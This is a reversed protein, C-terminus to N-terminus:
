PYRPPMPEEKGLTFEPVFGIRSTLFAITVLALAWSLAYSTALGIAGYQPILFWASSIMLCDRPLSIAGLSIWMRARSQIIQYAAISLGELVAGLAVLYLLTNADVFEKGFLRLLLEGFLLLGTAGVALSAGTIWFNTWFATRYQQSYRSDALSNIVSMSVNNALAPFLLLLARLSSAAAYLGMQGLGDEQRVLIANSIWIALLASVGSLAAPAAFTSVINSESALGRTGIPIGQRIAEKRLAINTFGWRVAASLILALIVTDLGGLLAFAACLVVQILGALVGVTATARYHELGALAGIQFGNMTAFLVVGGALGIASALSPTDLIQTSIFPGTLLLVLAGIAGTIVTLLSCLALVRGAREKNESRYQAVFKTATLGMAFQAIGSVSLITSWVIAFEGFVAKGLINALALATLFNSLSTSAAAVANWAIGRGLRRNLEM